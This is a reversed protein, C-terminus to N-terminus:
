HAYGDDSNAGARGAVASITPMLRKGFDGNLSLKGTLNLSYNFAKLISSIEVNELKPQFSAQPTDGRADLSGPLSLRGGDLSGQM